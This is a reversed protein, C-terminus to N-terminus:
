RSPAPPRAGREVPFEMRYLDFGEAWYDKVVERLRFGIKEYFRYAVQKTRVSITRDSDYEKLKAIRYRTLASGLGKGQHDPHFIDWSIKGVTGDDSFNFGGCGLVEDDAEVVFYHDAHNELYYVLDAEEAPAFSQPTNLRLLHLVSAQDAATYPRITM